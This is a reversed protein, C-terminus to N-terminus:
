NVQDCLAVSTGTTVSKRQVSQVNSGSSITASGGIVWDNAIVISIKSITNCGVTEAGWQQTYRQGNEDTDGQSIAKHCGIACVGDRENHM